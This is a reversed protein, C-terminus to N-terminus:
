YGFIQQAQGLNGLGLRQGRPAAAPELAARDLDVQADLMVEAGVGLRMDGEQYVVDRAQGGAGNRGAVRDLRVFFEAIDLADEDVVREAIAKFEQFRLDGGGRGEGQLSVRALLRSLSFTLSGL